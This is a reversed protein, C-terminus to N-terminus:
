TKAPTPEMTKHHNVTCKTSRRFAPLGSVLKPKETTGANKKVHNTAPQTRMKRPSPATHHISKFVGYPEAYHKAREEPDRRERREDVATIWDLEVQPESAAEAEVESEHRHEHGPQHSKPWPSSSAFQPVMLLLLRKVEEPLEFEVVKRRKCRGCYAVM